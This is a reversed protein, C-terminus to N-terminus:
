RSLLEPLLEAAAGLRRLLELAEPERFGVLGCTPTLVLRGCVEPGLELPRLVALAQDVLADVSPLAEGRDVPGLGLWLGEGRAGDSHLAASLHEGIQDMRDTRGVQAPDLHAAPVSWGPVAAQALIALPPVDECSHVAVRAGRSTMAEVAEGLLSAVVERDVPDYHRYKSATRIRGQVVASLCPEDWRFDVPCPLRRQVEALWREAGGVLAQAIDRVAGLDSLVKEGRELELCAALTWPGALGLTIRGPYEQAEEELLDVSERLRRVSRVQELSTGPSLRWGSPVRDTDVSDLIACARGIMGSEPGRFPLEPLYALEPLEGLTLRTVAAQDTGPWSGLGTVRVEPVPVEGM